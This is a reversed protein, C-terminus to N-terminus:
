MGSEFEQKCLWQNIWFHLSSASASAMESGPTPFEGFKSIEDNSLDETPSAPLSKISSPAM